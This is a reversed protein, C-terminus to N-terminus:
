TSLVNVGIATDLRHGSGSRLRLCDQASEAIAIAVDDAQCLPNPKLSTIHRRGRGARWDPENTWALGNQDVTRRGSGVPQVFDLM